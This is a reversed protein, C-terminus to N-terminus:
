YKDNPGIYEWKGEKNKKHIPRAKKIEEQYTIFERKIIEKQKTYCEFHFQEKTLENCVYVNEIIKGCFNCNDGSM